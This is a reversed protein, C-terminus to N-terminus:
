GNRVVGCQQHVIETYHFELFFSNFFIVVLCHIIKVYYETHTHQPRTNRLFIDLRNSCFGSVLTFERSLIIWFFLNTTIISERLANLNNKWARASLCNKWLYRGCAKCEAFICMSAGVIKKDVNACVLLPFPVISALLFSTQFGCRHKVKLM